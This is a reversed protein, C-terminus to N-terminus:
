TGKQVPFIPTPLCGDLGVSSCGISAIMACAEVPEVHGEVVVTQHGIRPEQQRGGQSVVETQLLQNVLVKVEAGPGTPRIDSVLEQREDHRGEVAAVADVVRVGQAGAAGLSDQAEADLRGGGQPREQPAEAPTV